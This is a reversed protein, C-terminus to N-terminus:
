PTTRQRWPLARRRRHRIRRVLRKDHGVLSGFLCDQCRAHRRLRCFGTGPRWGCYEAWFRARKGDAIIIAILEPLGDTPKLTRIM